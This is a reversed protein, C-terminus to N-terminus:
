SSVIVRQCNQQRGEAPVEIEALSYFEIHIIYTHIYIYVYEFMNIWGGGVLVGGQEKLILSQYPLGKKRPTFPKPPTVPLNTVLWQGVGEVWRIPRPRPAEPTVPPNWSLETPGTDGRCHAESVPSPHSPRNTAQRRHRHSPPPSMPKIMGPGFGDVRCRFFLGRPLESIGTPKVMMELHSSNTEPLTSQAM